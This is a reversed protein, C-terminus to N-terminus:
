ETEYPPGPSTEPAGAGAAHLAEALTDLRPNGIFLVRGDLIYTPVAVLGPPPVASPQALDVVRVEVLPFRAAIDAALARARGCGFCQPAVVVALVHRGVHHREQPLRADHVPALLRAVDARRAGWPGGAAHRRPRSPGSALAWAVLVLGFVLYELSEPGVLMLSVGPSWLALVASDLLAMSVGGGILWAVAAVPRTPPALACAALLGLVSALLVHLAASPVLAAVQGARLPLSSAPGALSLVPRLCGPNGLGALGLACALMAVGATAGAVAGWWLRGGLRWRGRRM